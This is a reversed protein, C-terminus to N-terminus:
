NVTVSLTAEESDDSTDRLTVTWTGAVPFIVNDWQHNGDASPAFAHSILDDEGALRARIRYTFEGGTDNPPRNSDAGTVNIRCASVVATIDGSAQTIALAAAVQDEQETRLRAWANQNLRDVQLNIARIDGGENFPTEYREEGPRGGWKQSYYTMNSTFTLGNQRMYLEHGRITASGEHEPSGDIEIIPVGALKARWAMDNDEFYAPHLNEDFLGTKELAAQNIGFAAFGLLFGIRPSPDESMVRDVEALEGPHFAVDDNVIFWWPARPTLKFILNWSAAVGINHPLHVVHCTDEVWDPFERGGNDIVLITQIEHDISGVMRELLDSRYLTPTALIPIM